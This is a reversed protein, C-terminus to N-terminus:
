RNRWVVRDDIGLAAQAATIDAKFRGADLPYGATPKLGPVHRRWFDNFALMALERLYKSAMSALATPLYREARTCFVVQTRRESPGWRYVSQEQGEGYVEVLFETVHRQLLPQYSNRGGHKDCVVAVPEDGLEALSEALLRLTLLSLVTSKNGHEDLLQNWDEPFVARSRIAVLSVGAQECAKRSRGTLSEIHEADAHVPLDSQYDLHWPQCDLSQAAQPDLAHWAARWHAPRPSLLGLATLLGTELAGLGEGSRYLTKSDTWVVKKPSRVKTAVACAEVAPKAPRGKAAASKPPAASVAKRLLKYLDVDCPDGPVRWVTVSIVLPGLNPGYGAEDTGVLYGM